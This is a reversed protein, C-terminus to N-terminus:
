NLAQGRDVDIISGTTACSPGSTFAVPAAQEVTMMEGTLTKSKFVKEVMEDIVSSQLRSM